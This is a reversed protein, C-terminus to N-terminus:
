EATVRGEPSVSAGRARLAARWAVGHIVRTFLKDIKKVTDTMRGRSFDSVMMWYVASMNARLLRSLEPDSELWSVLAPEELDLADLAEDLYADALAVDDRESDDLRRKLMRSLVGRTVQTNTM